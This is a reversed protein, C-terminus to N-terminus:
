QRIAMLLLRVGAGSLLAAFEVPLCSNRETHWGKSNVKPASGQPTPAGGSVQGTEM